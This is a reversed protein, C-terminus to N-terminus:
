LYFLLSFIFDVYVFQVFSPSVTVFSPSILIGSENVVRM